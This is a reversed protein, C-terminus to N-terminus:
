RMMPHLKVGLPTPSVLNLFDRVVERKELNRVSKRENDNNGIKTMGVETTGGAFAAFTAQEPDIAFCFL